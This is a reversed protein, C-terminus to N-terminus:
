ELADMQFPKTVGAGLHGHNIVANEAYGTIFV